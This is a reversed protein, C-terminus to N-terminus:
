VGVVIFHFADDKPFGDPKRLLVHFVLNESGCGYVLVDGVVVSLADSTEVVM